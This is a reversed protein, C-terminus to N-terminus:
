DFGERAMDIAQILARAGEPAGVIGAIGCM